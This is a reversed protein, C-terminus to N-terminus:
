DREGVLSRTGVLFFLSLVLILSPSSASVPPTSISPFTPLSLLLSPSLSPSFTIRHGRNFTIYDIVLNSFLTDIIIITTNNTVEALHINETTSTEIERAMLEAKHIQDESMKSMDLKKTYLDENYTNKVNFLRSNTEFQDWKGTSNNGTTNETGSTQANNIEDGLSTDTNPDLWASASQLDRGEM